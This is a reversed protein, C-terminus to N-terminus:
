RARRAVPGGGGGRRRRRRRRRLIKICGVKMATFIIGREAAERDSREGRRARARTRYYLEGGGGGGGCLEAREGAASLIGVYVATEGTRSVGVWFAGRKAFDRAIIM